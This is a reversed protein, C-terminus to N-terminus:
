KLNKYVAEKLLKTAEYLRNRVDTEEGCALEQIIEVVDETLIYIFGDKTITRIHTTTM